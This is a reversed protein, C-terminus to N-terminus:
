NQVAEADLRLLEAVMGETEIATRNLRELWLSKVLGTPDETPDRFAGLLASAIRRNLDSNPTRDALDRAFSARLSLLMLQGAFDRENRTAQHNLDEAFDRARDREFAFEDIDILGALHALLM